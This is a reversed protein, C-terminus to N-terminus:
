QYDNENVIRSAVNTPLFRESIVPEFHPLELIAKKIINKISTVNNECILYRDFEKLYNSIEGNFLGDGIYIIPKEYNSYYFVKGPIQVGSINGICILIDCERELKEVEKYTIREYEIDVNLFEKKNFKINSDGRVILELNDLERITNLLPTINRINKSFAGFYGLKIKGKKNKIDYKDRNLYSVDSWRMKSAFEPYLEKQLRCLIPSCYIIEDARKLVKKEIINHFFRKLPLKDICDLMGISLPDSWYQFYKLYNLNSFKIIDEALIASLPSPCFSIILDYKCNFNNNKLSNIKYPRFISDGIINEWLLYVMRLKTKKLWQFGRKTGKVYFIHNFFKNNTEKNQTFSDYDVTVLDLHYGKEKLGYFITANLLNNSELVNNSGSVCLIKM